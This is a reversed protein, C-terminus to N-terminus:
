NGKLGCTGHNCAPQLALCEGCPACAQKGQRELDALQAAVSQNAFTDCGPTDFCGDAVWVCDGDVTCSRNASVLTDFQARLDACEAADVGSGGSGSGGGGGPVGGAGCGIALALVM